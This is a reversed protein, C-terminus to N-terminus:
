KFNLHPHNLNEQPSFSPCLPHLWSACTQGLSLTILPLRCQPQSGGLGGGCAAFSSVSTLSPQTSSAKAEQSFRTPGGGGGPSRKGRWTRLVSSSLALVCWQAHEVEPSSGGGEPSWLSTMETKGGMLNSFCDTSEQKAASVQPCVSELRQRGGSSKSM